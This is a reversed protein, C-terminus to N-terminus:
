YISQFIHKLWARLNIFFSRCPYHNIYKELWKGYSELIQKEVSDIRDTWNYVVDLEEKWFALPFDATKQEHHTRFCALAQKILTPRFGQYALRGYLEHDMAYRLSEDIGGAQLVANRRWFSSPQPLAIGSRKTCVFDVWGMPVYNVDRSPETYLYPQFQSIERLDSDTFITTGVIWSIPKPSQAITSVVKFLTDPLYIDDANLWAVWDGTAKKIGKNIAHSQGRDQVTEWYTLWPEYKKIIEVTGDTSGGDIILYELEPYDQMLVSRITEEIYIGQNFSPTIISIRPLYSHAPVDFGPLPTAQWPWTTKGIYYPFDPERSISVPFNM